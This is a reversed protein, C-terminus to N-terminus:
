RTGNSSLRIALPMMPFSTGRLPNRTRTGHGGSRNAPKKSVRHPYKQFVSACLCLSTTESFHPNQVTSHATLNKISASHLSDDPPDHAAGISNGPRKRLEAQMSASHRSGDPANHSGCYRAAQHKCCCAIQRIQQQLNHQPSTTPHM